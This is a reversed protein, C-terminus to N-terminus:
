SILRSTGHNFQRRRFAGFEEMWGRCDHHVLDNKEESNGDQRCAARRAGDGVRVGRAPLLLRLVDGDSAVVPADRVDVSLGVSVGDEPEDVCLRLVVEIADLHVEDVRLTPQGLRGAIGRDVAVKAHLQEDVRIAQLRHVGRAGCEHFRQHICPGIPEVEIQVLMGLDRRFDDRAELRPHRQREAFAANTAVDLSHVKAVELREVTSFTDLRDRQAGDVAPLRLWRARVADRDPRGVGCALLRQEEDVRVRREEETRFHLDRAIFPEVRIPGYRPSLEEDILAEVLADPPHVRRAADVVNVLVGLRDHFFAVAQEVRIAVLLPREDRLLDRHRVLGVGPHRRLFEGDVARVVARDNAVRVALPDANAEHVLGHLRQRLRVRPGLRLAVVVELLRHVEVRVRRVVRDERAGVTVDRVEM